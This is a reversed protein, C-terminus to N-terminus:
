ADKLNIEYPCTSSGLPIGCTASGSCSRRAQASAILVGNSYLERDFGTINVTTKLMSCNYSEHIPVTKSM